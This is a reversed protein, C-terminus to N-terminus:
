IPPVHLVYPFLLPTYLTKTPFASHFIGSPLGLRLHSSLILISRWSTPHLPYPSSRVPQPYPCTAPVPSHPLSGETGYFAPFKNFLQSGTLKELLVRSMSFTFLYTLLSMNSTGIPLYNNSRWTVKERVLRSLKLVEYQLASHLSPTPM